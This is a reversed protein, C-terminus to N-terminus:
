LLLEYVLKPNTGREIVKFSV